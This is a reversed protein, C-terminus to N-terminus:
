VPHRLRAAGRCGWRAAAAYLATIDAPIAMAAVTIGGFGSAFGTVAVLRTHTAIIRDIAREPDDHAAMHERAVQEAGKIPGLGDVGWALLKAVLAQALEARGGGTGGDSGADSVGTGVEDM